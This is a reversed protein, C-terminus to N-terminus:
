YLNCIKEEFEEISLETDFTHYPGSDLRVMLSYVLTKARLRAYYVVVRGIPYEKVFRQDKPIIGKEEMDWNDVLYNYLKREPINLRLHISKSKIM